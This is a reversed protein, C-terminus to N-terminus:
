RNSYDYTALNMNMKRAYELVVGYDDETTEVFRRADFKRLIERGEPTGDMELLAQRLRDRIGRDIGSRLALANEPVEPSRSLIYLEDRVRTDAAGLSDIVTNKAAGIDAKGDLVDYVCNEHTGTFYTERFHSEPDVIGASRFYALPVLYGAFTAKAVYAFRKEKMDRATRIGSDKRVFVVGHYTSVGKGDEPRVLVEVGLKAHALSYSFSGFFAGDLGASKFNDIVNGYFLLVKLQVDVGTKRSLYEALPQYREMQTFINWEPILGIKITTRPPAEPLAPKDPKACGAAVVLLIWIAILSRHM